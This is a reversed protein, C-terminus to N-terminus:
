SQVGQFCKELHEKSPPKTFLSVVIVALISIPLIIIIQNIGNWNTKGAPIFDSNRVIVRYMICFLSSVICMLYTLLVGKDESGLM